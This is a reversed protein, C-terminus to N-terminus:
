GRPYPTERSREPPPQRHPGHSAEQQSVPTFSVDTIGYAPQWTGWCGPPTKERLDPQIRAQCPRCWSALVLVPVDGGVEVHGCQREPPGGCAICHATQLWIMPGTM